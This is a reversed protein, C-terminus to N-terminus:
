PSRFGRLSNTMQTLADETTRQAVRQWLLVAFLLTFTAISFLWVLHMSPDLSGADALPGVVPEPHLGGWWQAAFYVIPVDVFGIIGLVAAYRAGQAPSPAYARLILYAM